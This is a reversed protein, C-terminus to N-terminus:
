AVKGTLTANLTGSGSTPTYRLRIAYATSGLIDITGNSASGSATPTISLPLANWDGAVYVEGEGNQEYTNSVEVSFTGTPTGTWSIDYSVGTINQIISVTSVVSSTMDAADIVQYQDIPRSAM